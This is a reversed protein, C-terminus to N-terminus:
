TNSCGTDIKFYAVKTTKKEGKFILNHSSPYHEITMDSIVEPFLRM